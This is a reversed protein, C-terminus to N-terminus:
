IIVRNTNESIPNPNYDGCEEQIIFGNASLWTHIQELTAFHKVSPIDETIIRGGNLTLKFSRTFQIISREKDFTSNVLNM